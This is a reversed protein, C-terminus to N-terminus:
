AIFYGTHIHIICDVGQKSLHLSGRAIDAPLVILDHLILLLDIHADGEAERIGVLDAHRVEAHLDEVAKKIAHVADPALSAERGPAIHAFLEPFLSYREPRQFAAIRQSIEVDNGKGDAILHSIGGHQIHKVQAADGDACLVSLIQLLKHYCATLHGAVDLGHRIKEIDAEEALPLLDVTLQDLKVALCPPFAPRFFGEQPFGRLDPAHVNRAQVFDTVVVVTRNERDRRPVARRFLDSFADDLVKVRTIVGRIGDHRGGLDHM